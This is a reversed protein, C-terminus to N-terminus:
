KITIKCKQKKGSGDTAKCTITVTHGKGAKKTTVRGKKSVTAYKKNSTTWKVKKNMAKAPKLKAKLTISKGAKLTVKTKNLTVKTVKQGIRIKCTAKVTGQDSATCTITVTHKNGAKKATVKGTSNVTAYKANSTTWKVSKLSANAPYLKASLQLKKGPALTASTKNLKIRTVYNPKTYNLITGSVCSAGDTRTVTITYNGTALAKTSLTITNNNWSTVSAQFSQTGNSLTVTGPTDGLFYGQITLSGSQISMTNISPNPTTLAKAFNIKGGSTCKGAYSSNTDVGGIVRARIEKASMAPYLSALFAVEGTVVPASMSSGNCYTYKSLETGVGLNDIYINYNSTTDAYYELIAYYTGAKKPHSTNAVQLCFNNWYDPTTEFRTSFGNSIDNATCDSLNSKTADYVNLEGQRSTTAIGNEQIKIRMGLYANGTHNAPITYPIAISYNKGADSKINWCLSKSNQSSDEVASTFSVGDAISLSTSSSSGYINDTSYNEFNEYFLSHSNEANYDEAAYTSYIDTGPAFVDVTTQGYNTFSAAQNSENSAGVSIIYDNNMAAPYTKQTDINVGENGASCITLIGLDGAQTILKDLTPSDSSGGGLSLNIARINVGSKKMSIAYNYTQVLNMLSGGNDGLCKVALLKACSIGAIGTNNNIAAAIVGAVHTGHGDTDGATEYTNTLANYMQTSYMSDKLDEQTYDIGTDAVVVVPTSSPTNSIVSGYSVDSGSDNNDELYWQYKSYTDNTLATAHFIYNPEVAEVSDLENLQEMLEETDCSKSSVFAGTDEKLSICSEVKIDSVADQLENKIQKKTDYDEKMQVIVEGEVYNQTHAESKNLRPSEPITLVDKAKGQSYINTSGPILLTAILIITLMRKMFHKM